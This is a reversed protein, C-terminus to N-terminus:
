RRARSNRVFTDSLPMTRIGDSIVTVEADGVKYRYASPVQKTAPPASALAAPGLPLASGAAALTQPPSCDRRSLPSM